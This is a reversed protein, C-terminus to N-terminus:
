NSLHQHFIGFDFILIRCKQHKESSMQSTPNEFVMFKQTFSHNAHGEQCMLVNECTIGWGIQKTGLTCFTAENKSATTLYASTKVHSNASTLSNVSYHSRRIWFVILAHLLWLLAAFKKKLMQQLLLRACKPNLSTLLSLTSIRATKGGSPQFTSTFKQSFPTKRFVSRSKYPHM